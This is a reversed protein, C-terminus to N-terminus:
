SFDVSNQDAEVFTQLDQEAIDPWRRKHVASGLMKDDLVFM